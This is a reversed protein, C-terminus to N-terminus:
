AVTKFAKVAKALEARLMDRGAQPLGAAEVSVRFNLPVGYGAIAGQVDAIADALMSFAASDLVAMAVSADM